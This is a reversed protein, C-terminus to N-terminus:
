KFSDEGFRNEFSTVLRDMTKKADVGTIKITISGNKQVALMLINLISKADITEKKYTFSVECECGQLMKVILTAPRTHLGLENQVRITRSLSQRKRM